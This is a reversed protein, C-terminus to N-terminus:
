KGPNNLWWSLFKTGGPMVCMASEDFTLISFWEKPKAALGCIWTASVDMSVAMPGFPGDFPLSAAEAGGKEVYLFRVWNFSAM